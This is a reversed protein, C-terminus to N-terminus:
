AAERKERLCPATIRAVTAGGANMVYCRDWTHESDAVKVIEFSGLIFTERAGDADTLILEQHDGRDYCIYSKATTLGHKDGSLGEGTTNEFRFTLMKKEKKQFVREPM